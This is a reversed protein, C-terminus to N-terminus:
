FTNDYIDKRESKMMTNYEEESIEYWVSADAGEALKVEVGYHVGDTLMMGDEAYLKDKKKTM